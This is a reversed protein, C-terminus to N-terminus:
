GIDWQGLMAEKGRCRRGDSEVLWLTVEHICKVICPLTTAFIDCRIPSERLEALAAKAARIPSSYRVKVALYDQEQCLHASLSLFVVRNHDKKTTLLM